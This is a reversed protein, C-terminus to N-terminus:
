GGGGVFMSVLSGAGGPAFIKTTLFAPHRHSIKAAADPLATALARPRGPLPDAEDFM